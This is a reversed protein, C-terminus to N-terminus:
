PWSRSARSIGCGMCRGISSIRECASRIAFITRFRRSKERWRGGSRVATSRLTTASCVSASRCFWSASEPMSTTRSSVGSSGGTAPSVWWSSCTNRLRRRFASCAIRSPWCPPRMVTRVRGASAPRATSACTSSLPGPMAGAAKGCTKSGNKVVFVTPTPM